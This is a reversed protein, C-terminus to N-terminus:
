RGALNRQGPNRRSLPNWGPLVYGIPGAKLTKTNQLVHQTLGPVSGMEGGETHLHHEPFTVAEFGLDEALQSLEVIEDLMKQFRDSHAAIPRLAEREEMTCPIAPYFFFMFKM